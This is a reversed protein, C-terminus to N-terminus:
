RKRWFVAYRKLTEFREKNEPDKSAREKYEAFFAVFISLFFGTFTAILVMLTRKPKARKEPPIAKDIVQIVAAEKAEDLKAAEFQKALLEYLTENFKLDRLKRIYETGIEPIRGTPILSDHGSGGKAELKGLEAKLGNLEDEARQLDPNQATAYTRMVKLQVEKAAIQARLMAIGEIIAKTQADVQLAGTKEQFGQMEEEAKVLAMKTDKLQEEFFLRRQSAETVALGKTLNKLEEVFANAMDAARKPDKDEVDITIIDTDKDTEAELADEFLEKRADERYEAKYLEMLNFRDIIRDAITRSELMGIYLDSPTKLGLSETIGQAGSMQSLMGVAISSSGTQPPLIRTEARYIPTMILSIIATILAAGSTISIILKKRKLLVILYDLLNIEDEVQSTLRSADSTDEDQQM